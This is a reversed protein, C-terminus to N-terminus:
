AAVKPLMAEIAALERDVEGIFLKLALEHSVAEAESLSVRVMKARLPEPFEPCYSLWDCWKAGSVYLQHKVQREYDIPIKGTRLYEWHTAPIPSKAEVIGEWDDVFGDVSAGVLLDQHRLFGARQVIRGTLVEYLGLADAEREIGSQMAFSQFDREFCKGTLRELALRVRLNVRGAAEKGDKRTALMDSVSSSTVRGLREQMWEPTRQECDVVVVRPNM